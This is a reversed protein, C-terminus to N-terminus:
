SPTDCAEINELIENRINSHTRCGSYQIYKSIGKQKQVLPPIETTKLTWLECVKLVQTPKPRKSSM